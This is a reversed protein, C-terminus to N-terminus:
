RVNPRVLVVDLVMYPTTQFLLVKSVERTVSRLQIKGTVKSFTRQVGSCCGGCFDPKCLGM